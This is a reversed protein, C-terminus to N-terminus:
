YRNRSYCFWHRVFYYNMTLNCEFKTIAKENFFTNL